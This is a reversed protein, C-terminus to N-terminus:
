GPKINHIFGWDVPQPKKKSKVTKDM